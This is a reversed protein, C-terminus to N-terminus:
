EGGVSCEFAKRYKNMKSNYVLMNSALNEGTKTMYTAWVFWYYYTLAACGLLHKQEEHTPMRGYYYSLFEPVEEIDANQAAFMRCIDYGIDTDGAYEWDIMSLNSRSVLLNDSYIDNHCLQVPWNDKKLTKNIKEFKKRQPLISNYSEEDLFHIRDLLKDSEEFYDFKSGCKINSSVLKHIHHALLTLHDKNYFDFDSDANIFNSLKWGSTEDEYIYSDDIGLGKAVQTAFKERARDIYGVSGKGPNRYVYLVGRCEFRFSKNTLGNPFPKINTIEKPECKLLSCINKVSHLDNEAIYNSDFKSLESISDFELIDEPECKQMYMPLEKVHEAYINEWYMDDTGQRGHYDEVLTKFKKSFSDDFYAHGVMCYQNEAPKQTDVILGNGNTILARENNIGPMFCGCYMSSYEYARFMNNPYYNDSCCIYSRKLYDRAAFISSHTNKTKYENNVVFHVGFKDGLYLFKEMMHGVVIYIEDIGAEKLQRIQREILVEGKVVTLGKPIEYSVPVFRTCMGAALIIANDVKYKQIIEKGKDSLTYDDILDAYKLEKLTKNVLGVSMKASEALSRQTDFSSTKLQILIEFQNRTLM